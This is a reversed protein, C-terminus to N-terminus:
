KFHRVSLVFNELISLKIIGPSCRVELGLDIGVKAVKLQIWLTFVNLLFIIALINAIM